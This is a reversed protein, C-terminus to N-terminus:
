YMEIRKIKCERIYDVMEWVEEKVRSSHNSNNNSKKFLKLQKSKNSKSNNNLVQNTQVSPDLM